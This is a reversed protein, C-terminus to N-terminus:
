PRRRERRRSAGGSRRTRGPGSSSGRHGRISLTVSALTRPCRTRRSSVPMATMSPVANTAPENTSVSEMSRVKEAMKAVESDVSATTLSVSSESSPPSSRARASSSRATSPTSRTTGSRAPLATMCPASPVATREPPAGVNPNAQSGSSGDIRITSPRAGSVAASSTTSVEVSSREPRPSPSSVTTTTLPVGNSTVMTPSAVLSVGLAPAAMTSSSGSSARACNAGVPWTAENVTVPESPMAWCATTSATARTTGAPASAM